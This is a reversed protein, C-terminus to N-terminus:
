LLGHRKRLIWETTLLGVVAWFWYFTEWLSQDSEVVRGSSLAEIQQFIEDAASEHRYQGGGASAIARMATQDVSVQNWEDLGQQGIWIPTTARLASQDFGSARIRIEYDGKPLGFAQPLDSTQGRYTGRAPDDAVLPVTAVVQQDASVILADVTSQGAPEGDVSRLRARIVPTEEPAYELKDTGVSLYEDSASYPPPLISEVAANWFHSHFRDAVKYRWRWTQDTAFYLVRGGGFLHTVLWPSFAGGIDAANAWIEAGPKAQVANIRTPAPLTEWFLESQIPDGLLDFAPQFMGTRTPVVGIPAAVVADVYQIPFLDPFQTDALKKLEGYQGDVIILGGGRSVFERLLQSDREDFFEAPVEGLIVADYKSISERSDPFKGDEDGHLMRPRSTGPGFLVTNVQWAPDRSFLNKLYRTEWRSGGDLIMLRNKKAAASVRFAFQNNQKLVDETPDGAASRVVARLDMVIASRRIDSGADDAIRRLVDQVKWQFPVTQQPNGTLTVDTQFLSLGRATEVNVSVTKGVSKSQNLVVTGKLTGDVSVSSPRDVAAIGFGPPEDLVGMGIAHVAAGTTRLRDAEGVPSGTDQNANVVGSRRNVNHRGDSMLVVATRVSDSDDDGALRDSRSQSVASLASAIDTQDGESFRLVEVHHTSKLRDVWGEVQSTGQLLQDARQIRNPASSSEPADGRETEMTDTLTMSDSVDVAFIVRGLTGVTTERHWVPGALTVIALAVAAGRLSPILFSAPTPISKTERQYYVVVMGAAILAILVVLGGPVDGTWRLSANLSIAFM